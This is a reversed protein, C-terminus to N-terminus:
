PGLGGEPALAPAYNAPVRFLDARQRAYAVSRAQMITHGDVVLRLLVGDETTCIVHTEVDDTWSWDICHLGAVVAEAGRKLVAGPPPETARRPAADLKRYTRSASILLTIVHTGRDFITTSRGPGDVRELRDSALWRVRERIKPERPRTVDYTVDVDRTPVLQPEGEAWLPSGALVLAVVASSSLGRLLNMHLTKKMHLKM